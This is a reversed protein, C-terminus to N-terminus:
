DYADSEDDDDDKDDDDEDEDEDDEDDDDEDEKDEIEAKVGVSQFTIYGKRDAFTLRVAVLLGKRPHQPKTDKPMIKIQFPGPKGMHEKRFLHDDGSMVAVETVLGANAIFDIEVKTVASVDRPLGCLPFLVTGKLNNETSPQVFAGTIKTTIKLTSESDNIAAAGHTSVWISNM